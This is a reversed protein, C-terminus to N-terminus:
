QSHTKYEHSIIRRAGQQTLSTNFMGFFEMDMAEIGM